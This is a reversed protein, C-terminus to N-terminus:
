TSSRRRRRTTRLCPLEPRAATNVSMRRALEQQVDDCVRSLHDLLTLASPRYSIESALTVYADGCEEDYYRVASLDRSSTDALSWTAEVDGVKYSFSASQDIHERAFVDGLLDTKIRATVAQRILRAYGSKGSANDGYIITLGSDSFALRQEPVLANVGSVDEVGLLRVPRGTESTGPIDQATVGPATPYTGAILHDAIEEVDEASPYENRCFRGVAEKQWDPRTAIWEALDEELTM